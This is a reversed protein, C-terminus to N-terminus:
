PSARQRRKFLFVAGMAVTAVAVEVMRRKKTARAEEENSSSFAQCGPVGCHRFFARAMAPPVSKLGRLHADHWHSYEYRRLTKKYENFGLEIPNKDPSYPPLYIYVAGADLILNQIKESHHVTANDLVVISRPEGRAYNGLIPVLCEEVWMEVRETGVTGITPNATEEQTGSGRLVIDCAGPIFGNIDCAALLTYRKKPEYDFVTQRVPSRGRPSWWRLRRSANRGKQSEDIYVLREPRENVAAKLAVDYLHRELLDQELAKEAVRQLSYKVEKRLKNWVTAPNWRAQTTAELRDVLEDLYLGPNGDIIAKLAQTDQVTWLRRIGGRLKMKLWKSTEEYTEGYQLYHLFWREATKHANAGNSLYEKAAEIAHKRLNPRRGTGIETVMDGMAVLIFSIVAQQTCHATYKRVELTIHM